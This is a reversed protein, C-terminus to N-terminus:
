KILTKEVSRVSFPLSSTRTYQIIFLRLQQRNWHEAQRLSQIGFTRKSVPQISMLINLKYITLEWFIIKKVAM